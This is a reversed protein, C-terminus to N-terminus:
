SSQRRQERKEREERKDQYKKGIWNGAAFSIAALLLYWPFSNAHLLCSERSEQMGPGSYVQECQWIMRGSFGFFLDLLFGAGLLTLITWFVPRAQEHNLGVILGVAGGAVFSWLFWTGMICGGEPEEALAEALEM